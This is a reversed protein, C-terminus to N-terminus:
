KKQSKTPKTMNTSSREKYIDFTNVDRFPKIAFLVMNATAM